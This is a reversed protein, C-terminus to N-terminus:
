KVGKKLRSLDVMAGLSINLSRYDVFRHSILSAFGFQLEFRYVPWKKLTFSNIVVPEWFITTGSGLEDLLFAKQEDTSYNTNTGHYWLFTIGSAFSTNFYKSYRIQIAPQLKIRTVRTEHYRSYFQGSSNKGNDNMTFKGTGITAMLQLYLHSSDFLPRFYGGGAEIIVRKYSIVASDSLLFDFDGSNKEYRNSTNLLVAWHNNFAYAAQVDFGYNYFNKIRTNSFPTSSYFAALKSDGKKALVPVNSAPPRYIYRPTYCSSFLIMLVLLPYANKM